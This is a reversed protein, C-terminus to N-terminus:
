FGPLAKKIATQKQQKTKKAEVKKKIRNVAARAEAPTVESEKAVATALEGWSNWGVHNGEADKTGAEYQNRAAAIAKRNVGGMASERQKERAERKSKRASVNANKRSAEASIRTSGASEASIARSAASERAKQAREIANEQREAGFEKTKQGFAQKQIAYDRAGERLKELNSVVAQGREKKGARLDEKIKRRRSTEAKHAEIGRETASVGRQGLYNQYNAREATLPSTLAVRQQAIATAGASASPANSVGVQNTGLLKGLAENKSAQEKLATQDSASANALRQTLASEAAQSSAAANQQAQGIQSTLGGYWSGLEGERKKSGAVESRLGRLVPKYVTNAEARATRQAGKPTPAEVFRERGKQERTERHLQRKIQSRRKNPM